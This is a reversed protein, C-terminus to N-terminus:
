ADYFTLRNRYLSHDPTIPTVTFLPILPTFYLLPLQRQDLNNKVVTGSLAEEQERGKGVDKYAIIGTAAHQNLLLQELRAHLDADL